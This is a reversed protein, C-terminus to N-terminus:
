QGGGGGGMMAAADMVPVGEPPTYDFTGEEVSDLFKLNAFKMSVMPQAEDGILLARPFGTEADLVMTMTDLGPPAQQGMGAKAEEKLKGVLRVEGGETGAVTFDAMAAMAELQAIPDMGGGGMGGMMGQSMAAAQEINAKMVQRMGGMDVETWATEGDAVVQINMSMGQGDATPLTEMTMKMHTKDGQILKGKIGGIPMPTGGGMAIELDVSFPAKEYLGTLKKLWEEADPSTQATLTVPMLLALIAGLCLIKKM